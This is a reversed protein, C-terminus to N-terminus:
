SELGGGGRGSSETDAVSDVVTSNVHTVGSFQIQTNLHLICLSICPDRYELLCDPRICRSNVNKQLCIKLTRYTM